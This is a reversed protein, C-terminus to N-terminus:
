YAPLNIFGKMQAVEMLLTFLAACVQSNNAEKPDVNPSPRSIWTHDLHRSPRVAVSGPAEADKRTVIGDNKEGYRLTISAAYVMKYFSIVWQM